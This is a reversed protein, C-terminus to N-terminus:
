HTHISSHINIIICRQLIYIRNSVIIYIVHQPKMRDVMCLQLFTDHTLTFPLVIYILVSEEQLLTLKWSIIYRTVNCSYNGIYSSCHAPLNFQSKEWSKEFNRLVEWRMHLFDLPLTVCEWLSNLKPNFLNVMRIYLLINNM